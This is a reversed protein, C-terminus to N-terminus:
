YNIAISFLISRTSPNTFYDLGYGNSVGFQNIEPDIGDIHSWLFLNRGTVTFVVSGLKTRERFKSGGLTYNLSLEKFRTFTADKVAFNYAQNDGFGGGIGTRYWSEDLLVPGGGFDKVNGRVTTGSPIVDGDFNVLDQSTTMRNATVETTGFRRLVWLTRPNFVGGQSHEILVNIGISKWSAHFGFGTRWDPNPDGLPIPGPTLSPFGNVDLVLNGNDDTLSGTGYLEGLPYGVIARSSVSQGTLDITTTGKLDTVENQNTSFNGFIGIDWNNKSYITLDADMEFGKNKMSAANTYQTSFGSSPALDVDILIGKIENQYYTMTLSLNDKFFRTDLGVEWETKIEPSLDPNGRNNDLRFGGGFLAIDLPNSYTSYSFGSEAATQFQYASPQVGVKGWSTRLKGFSVPTSSLDFFKTFQWAADFSPYFFTGKVTSAAEATGSVNIYLQNFMDFTMIAYGRNSRIDRNYNSITSNEAAANLDTTQKDSNVLFGTLTTTNYSRIQDNINYGVTAQLSINDTLNFNGKVIGDFNLQQESIIDESLVGPNRNGSSGIPFFYIRHDTYTDIGGRAIIRLWNTPTIDFQPTFIFRNLSSTAKQENITWLPNSYAPYSRKGIYSRYARHRGPFEENADSVYTGKYDSIDFDPPTRLLGLMLGSVNSSQQIRNSFSNIFGVKTSASFWKALKFTTNLRLNTRNYESNKIIGSQDLRGMSFFYTADEKGGSINLDHQLTKGTQFVQDWNSDTFTDKSNKTTIPYYVTGDDAVFHEGSNDVVDAGGARDPIYDGWSEARTPSYVGSRGQGWTNQMPIRDNVQDFSNTFKYNINFKGAKGSKTTIVIVGNAARSGWLSAASAGKLIQVSEIDDPNIDNLRSQQSTGASRGGTINNGGGYVTSNSIPVGDLIVLPASSGSITNAGRIRITTGAGPDGNSRSVQVNSAKAGLSNILMTEGSRTIDDPQVSSSTAGTEDKFQKFGLATVVVEDLKATNVRMSVNYSDQSGIEIQQTLYGIFSFVLIGRGEPIDLKYNGTADSVTGLTTGKLVVSTGPLPAGNEDLVQGTITRPAQFALANFGASFQLIGMLLLGAMWKLYLPTTKRNLGWFLKKSSQKM